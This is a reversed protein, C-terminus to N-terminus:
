NRVSSPDIAFPHSTEVKISLWLEGTPVFIYAHGPMFAQFDSREVGEGILEGAPGKLERETEREFQDASMLPPIGDM